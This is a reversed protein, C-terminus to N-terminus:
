VCSARGQSMNQVMILLEAKTAAYLFLTGIAVDAEDAVQQTTVGSIGHHTFLAKAARMIREHKDQKARGRRGVPRDQTDM